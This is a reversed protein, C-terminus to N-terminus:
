AVAAQSAWPPRGKQLSDLLAPSSPRTSGSPEGAISPEAPPAREATAATNEAM